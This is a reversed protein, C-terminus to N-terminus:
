QDKRLQNRKEVLLIIFYNVVAIVAKAAIFLTYSIKRNEPGTMM